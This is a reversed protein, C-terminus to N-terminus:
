GGKLITSINIKECYYGLSECVSCVDSKAAEGYKIVVYTILILCVILIITLFFQLIHFKNANVKIGFIDIKEEENM